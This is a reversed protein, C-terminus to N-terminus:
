DQTVVRQEGMLMTRHTQVAARKDRPNMKFLNIILISERGRAHLQLCLRSWRQDLKIHMQKNNILERTEMEDTKRKTKGGTYKCLQLYIYYSAKQRRGCNIHQLGM